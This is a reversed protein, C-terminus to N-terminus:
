VHRTREPEIAPTFPTNSHKLFQLQEGIGLGEMPTYCDLDTLCGRYLEGALVVFRPRPTYGFWIKLQRNVKRSWAIRDAAAMDTLTEDYPAVAATPFLLGHKASLIAWFDCERRVYERAATFLPSTYLDEAASRQGRKAKSCAVLGVRAPREVRPDYNGISESDIVESM